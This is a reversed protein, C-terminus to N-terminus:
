PSDFILFNNEEIKKKKFKILVKRYDFMTNDEYIAKSQIHRSFKHVSIVQLWWKKNKSKMKKKKLPPPAHYSIILENCQLLLCLSPHSEKWSTYFGVDFDSLFFLLILM